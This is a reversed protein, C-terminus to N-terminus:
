MYTFHIIQSVVIVKEKKNKLNEQCTTAIRGGLETCRFRDLALGSNQSTRTGQMSEELWSEMQQFDDDHLNAGHFSVSSPFNTDM